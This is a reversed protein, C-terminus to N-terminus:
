RFIREKLHSANKRLLFRRKRHPKQLAFVRLRVQQVVLPSGLPSQVGDLRLATKKARKPLDKSSTNTYKERLGKSFGDLFHPKLTSRM